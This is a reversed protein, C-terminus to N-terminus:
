VMRLFNIELGNIKKMQDYIGMSISKRISIEVRCKMAFDTSFVEIDKEKIIKMVDNMLPYDYCLEYVENITKTIIAANQIADIAASKYANILGPVGLLTGGFYRVVVILVNTLDKSLIQNFIPKGATGSPEGDDSSRFLMKDSGIRYAFCHHCADHYQKRIGVIIQKAEEETKVPFLLGIFKSGRDKFLGKSPTEVTKYTDEFLM